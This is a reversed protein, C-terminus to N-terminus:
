ITCPEGEQTTTGFSVSDTDACAAAGPATEQEAAPGPDVRLRRLKEWGAWLMKGGAARMEPFFEVGERVPVLCGTLSLYTQYEESLLYRLFDLAAPSCGRRACAFMPVAWAGPEPWVMAAGDNRFTRAFAPISLGAAFNGLDVQKNIDLPCFRTDKAARVRGSEEGCLVTMMADFLAPMPTDLPPVALSDRYPPRCLDAWRRPPDVALNHILLVPVVAVVRLFASPEAMGLERLEARMPPLDAPLPEFLGHGGALLTDALSPYATVTLDPVPMGGPRGMAEANRFMELHTSPPLANLTPFRREMEGVTKRLINPAVALYVDNM